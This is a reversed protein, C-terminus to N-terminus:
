LMASIVLYPCQKEERRTVILYILNHIYGLARKKGEMISPTVHLGAFVAIPVIVELTKILNFWPKKVHSWLVNFVLNGTREARNLCRVPQNTTNHIALHSDRINYTKDNKSPPHQHHRTKTVANASNFTESIDLSFCVCQCASMKGICHPENSKSKLSPGYYPVHFHYRHYLEYDKAFPIIRLGCAFEFWGIGM